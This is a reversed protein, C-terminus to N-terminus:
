PRPAASSRRRAKSACRGSRFGRRSRCWPCENPSRGPGREDVQTARDHRADLVTRDRDIQRSRLPAAGPEVGRRLVAGDRQSQRLAVRGLELGSREVSRAVDLVRQRDFAAQAPVEGGRESGPTGHDPHDGVVTGIWMVCRQTAASRLRRSRRRTASDGPMPNQAMLSPRRDAPIAPSPM